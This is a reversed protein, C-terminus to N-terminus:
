RGMVEELSGLLSRGRLSPQGKRTNNLSVVKGDPGVLVTTPYSSIRLAEIVDQISGRTAQVWNMENRELAAKV